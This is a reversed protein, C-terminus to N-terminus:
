LVVSTKREVRLAKSRNQDMRYTMSDRFFTDVPLHMPPFAEKCYPFTCPGVKNAIVAIDAHVAYAAQAHCHTAAAALLITLVRLSM